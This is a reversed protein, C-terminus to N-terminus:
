RYFIHTDIQALRQKRYSWKPRVYNAHFFVADGAVSEWMGDHAIRAIAKARQWAATHTRIQPMRGNKVFSFQARQYVVGCYSAPFRADEARNIVVQAVALQGALPEGRSEFYVAGALCAMEEGLRDDAPIRAVLEHLSTAPPFDPTEATGAEPGLPQVVEESIFVTDQPVIEAIDDAPAAPQADAPPTEGETAQALAEAGDASSFSLSATAAIALASLSYTRRSM